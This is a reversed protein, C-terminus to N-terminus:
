ASLYRVQATEDDVTPIWNNQRLQDLEKFAGNVEEVQITVMDWFGQLDDPKIKFEQEEDQVKSYSVTLLYLLLFLVLFCM